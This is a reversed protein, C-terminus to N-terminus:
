HPRLAARRDRVSRWQAEQQNPRRRARSSRHRRVSTTRNPANDDSGRLGTAPAAAQASVALLRSWRHPPPSSSASASSGGAARVSSSGAAAPGARRSVSVVVAVSAGIGVVLSSALSGRVGDGDPFCDTDATRHGTCLLMFVVGAPLHSSLGVLAGWLGAGLERRALPSSLGGDM